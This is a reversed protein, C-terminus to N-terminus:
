NVARSAGMPFFKEQYLLANDSFRCGKSMDTNDVGLKQGQELTRVIIRYLISRSLEVALLEKHTAADKKSQM